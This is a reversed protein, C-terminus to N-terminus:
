KLSNEIYDLRELLTNCDKQIFDKDKWKTRISEILFRETSLRVINGTYPSLDEPRYFSFIPIRTGEIFIDGNELLHAKVIPDLIGTISLPNSNVNLLSGNTLFITKSVPSHGYM